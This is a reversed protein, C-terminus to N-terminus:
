SLCELEMTTGPVRAVQTDINFHMRLEMELAFFFKFTDMTVHILGGRDLVTVWRTTDDDYTDEEACMELLGYLMKNDSWYHDQVVKIATRIM